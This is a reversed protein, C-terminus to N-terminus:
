FLTLSFFSRFLSLAFLGLGVSIIPNIHENALTIIDFIAIPLLFISVKTSSVIVIISFAVVFCSISFALNNLFLANITIDALLFRRIVIWCTISIKFKNAGKIVGITVKKLNFGIGDATGGPTPTGKPV